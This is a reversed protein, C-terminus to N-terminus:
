HARHAQLLGQHLGMHLLLRLQVPLQRLKLGPAKRPRM